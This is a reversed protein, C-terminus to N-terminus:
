TILIDKHTLIKIFLHELFKLKTSSEKNITYRNRMNTYTEFQTKNQPTKLTVKKTQYIIKKSTTSRTTM